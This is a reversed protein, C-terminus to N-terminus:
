SGTQTVPSIEPVTGHQMCESPGWCRTTEKGMAMTWNRENGMPTTKTQLQVSFEIVSHQKNLSTTLCQTTQEFINNFM